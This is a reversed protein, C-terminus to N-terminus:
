REEAEQKKERKEEKQKRNMGLINEVTQKAILYEQVERDHAKNIYRESDFLVYKKFIIKQKM